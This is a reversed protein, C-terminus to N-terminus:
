FVQEYIDRIDKAASEQDKQRMLAWLRSYWQDNFPDESESATSDLSVNSDDMM